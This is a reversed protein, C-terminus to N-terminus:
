SPPSEYGDWPWRARGPPRWRRRRRSGRRRPSPVPSGAWPPAPPPPAGPTNKTAAAQPNKKIAGPAWIVGGVTLDAIGFLRKGQQAYQLCLPTIGLTAPIRLSLGQETIAPDGQHACPTIQLPAFSDELLAQWRMGREKSDPALGVGVVQRFLATDSVKPPRLTKRWLWARLPLWLFCSILLAMSLSVRSSLGMGFLFLFDLLVLMLVTAGWGLIRLWWEGLGFLGVRLIGLALGAYILLFISFSYGQMAGTDIGYLQPIFILVSFLCLGVVWALLFWQLAARALPDRLSQRWQLVGLVLMGLLGIFVPLRRGTIMSEVLGSQQVLFWSLYALLLWRAVPAPHLQRPYHWLLAVMTACFLSGGFFNLDSLWQFLTGPLALERTSYIAALPAFISTAWGSLLLLRASVDQPRFVWVAVSILWAFVGVLISVWFDPPLSTIPRAPLPNLPLADGETDVLSPNPATQLRYLADQRDLFLAYDTYTALNGDPEVTFDMALFDMEPLGNAVIGRIPTGPPLRLPDNSRLIVANGSVSDFALRVGSWPHSSALMLSLAMMGIAYLSAAFLWHSPAIRDLSPM